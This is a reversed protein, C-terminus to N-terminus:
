KPTNYHKERLAAFAGNEVANAIVSEIEAKKTMLPSKTSLAFHFHNVFPSKYAALKIEDSLGKQELQSVGSSKVHEFADIRKRQLLKVKQNFTPVIIVEAGHSELAAVYPKDNATIAVRKGELDDIVDLKTFNDNRIFFGNPTSTYSPQLYVFDGNESYTSRIGTMIDIVGSRLSAVRRNYTMHTIQLEMDLENALYTLYKFHVGNPFEASVSSKLISKNTTSQNEAFILNFGIALVLIMSKVLTATSKSTVNMNVEDWKHAGVAFLM